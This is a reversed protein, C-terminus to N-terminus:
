CKARTPFIVGGVAIDYTCSNGSGCANASETGTMAQGPGINAPTFTVTPQSSSCGGVTTNICSTRIIPAVDTDYITGTGGNRIVIQVNGGTCSSVGSIIAAKGTVTGFFGSIFGYALGVIAVAIILLIITSVVADIGKKM